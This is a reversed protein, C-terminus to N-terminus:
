EEPIDVVVTFKEGIDAIRTSSTIAVGDVEIETGAGAEELATCVDTMSRVPEGEIRTIMDGPFINADDVPSKRETALVYMGDPLEEDAVHEAAEASTFGAEELKDTLFLQFEQELDVSELPRLYWGVALRDNGELAELLGRLRQSPIAYSPDDPALDSAALMGAVEGSEDLLPGGSFGPQVQTTAEILIPFTPLDASVVHNGLQPDAITGASRQLTEREPSQFQNGYGLATVPQDPELESSSGLALEELGATSDGDDGLELVAVDECPAIGGVRVPIPATGVGVRATIDEVATVNWATTAVLGRELDYVFGSGGVPIGLRDGSLAVVAKTAAEPVEAQEPRPPPDDSTGGCGAAAVGALAAVAFACSLRGSMPM